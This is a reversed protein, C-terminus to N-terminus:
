LESPLGRNFASLQEEFNLLACVAQQINHTPHQTGEAPSRHLFDRLKSNQIYFKLHALTSLL